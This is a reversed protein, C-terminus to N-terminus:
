EQALLFRTFRGYELLNRGACSHGPLPPIVFIDMLCGREFSSGLEFLGM